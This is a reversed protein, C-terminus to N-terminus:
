ANEGTTKVEILWPLTPVKAIPKIRGIRKLRNILFEDSKSIDSRLNALMQKTAPIATAKEGNNAM